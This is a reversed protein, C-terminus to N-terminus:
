DLKKRRPKSFSKKLTYGSIIESLGGGYAVMVETGDKMNWIGACEEIHNIGNESIYCYYQNNGAKFRYTSKKIFYRGVTFRPTGELIQKLRKRRKATKLFLSWAYDAIFVPKSTDVKILNGTLGNFDAQEREAEASAFEEAGESLTFKNMIVSDTDDFAIMLNQGVFFPVEAYSGTYEGYRVTGDLGYFSYRLLIRYYSYTHRGDAGNHQMKQKIIEEVTGDTLTCNKLIRRATKRRKYIPIYKACAVAIIVSLIAIFMFAFVTIAADRFLVDFNIIILAIAVALFFALVITLFIAEGVKFYTGEAGYRKSKNLKYFRVGSQEM